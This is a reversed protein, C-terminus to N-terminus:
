LSTCEAFMDYSLKTISNPLKVKELTGCGFFAMDEITTVSNPIIVAGFFGDLRSIRIVPHGEIQDPITLTDGYGALLDGNGHCGLITVNGNANLSYDLIFSTEPVEYTYKEDEAFVTNPFLSCMFCIVTLFSLIRKKM